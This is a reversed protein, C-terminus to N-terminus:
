PAIRRPRFQFILLLTIEGRICRNHTTHHEQLFKAFLSLRPITKTLNRSTKNAKKKIRVVPLPLIEDKISPKSFIVLNSNEFLIPIVSSEGFFFFNITNYQYGQNLIAATVDLEMSLRMTRTCEFLDSNYAFFFCLLTFNSRLTVALVTQTLKISTLLQWPCM